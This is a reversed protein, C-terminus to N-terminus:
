KKNEIIFVKLGMQLSTNVRDSCILIYKNDKYQSLSKTINDVDYDSTYTVLIVFSTM